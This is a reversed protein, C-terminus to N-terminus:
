PPDQPETRRIYVTVDHAGGPGPAGQPDIALDTGFSRPEPNDPEPNMLLATFAVMFGEANDPTWRTRIQCVSRRCVVNELLSAHVGKFDFAAEIEQEFHYAQSDRPEREFKAKLEDVPGGREPPPLPTEDQWTEEQPPDAPPQPATNPASSPKDPEAPPPERSPRAHTPLPVQAEPGAAPEAAALEDLEETPPTDSTSPRSLTVAWLAIAGVVVMALVHNRRVGM